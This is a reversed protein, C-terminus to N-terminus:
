VAVRVNCLSCPNIREFEQLIAELDLACVVAVIEPDFQAGAHARLEGIAASLSMPARYARASTMADFADLVSVFRAEFPIHSRKLGGPYGLGDWREHHWRAVPAAHALAPIAALLRGGLEAHRRVQSTEHPDLPGPRSLLDQPVVIKGVDHLLAAQVLSQRERSGIGISEAAVDVLRSVRQSHGSSVPDSEDIREVFWAVLSDIEDVSGISGVSDTSDM